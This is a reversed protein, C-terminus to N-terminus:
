ILELVDSVSYMEEQQYCHWFLADMKYKEINLGEMCCASFTTDALETFVRRGDEACYMEGSQEMQHLYRLQAVTVILPLLDQRQIMRVRRGARVLSMEVWKQLKAVTVKKKESYGCIRAQSMLNQPCKRDTPLSALKRQLIRLHM